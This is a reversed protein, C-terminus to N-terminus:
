QIILKLRYSYCPFTFSVTHLPTFLLSVHSPPNTAPGGGYLTIQQGCSCKRRTTWMATQPCICPATKQLCPSPQVLFELSLTSTPPSHISWTSSPLSLITYVIHLYAPLTYQISWTSTPPSHISWTSTQPSHLFIMHIDMCYIPLTPFM